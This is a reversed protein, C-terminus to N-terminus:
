ELDFVSRFFKDWFNKEGGDRKKRSLSIRRICFGGMKKLKEIRLNM